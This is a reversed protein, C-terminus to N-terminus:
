DQATISAAYAGLPAGSLFIFEMSKYVTGGADVNFTASTFTFPGTGTWTALAGDFYLEFDTTAAGAPVTLVIIIRIGTKQTDGMNTINLDGIYSVGVIGSETFPDIGNKWSLELPYESVLVWDGTLTNALLAATVGGVVLLVCLSALLTRKHKIDRM